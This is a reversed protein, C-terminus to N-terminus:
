QLFRVQKPLMLYRIFVGPVRHQYKTRFFANAHIRDIIEMYSKIKSRIKM